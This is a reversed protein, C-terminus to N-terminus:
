SASRLRDRTYSATTRPPMRSSEPVTLAGMPRCGVSRLFIATVGFPERLATVCQPDDRAIAAVRVDAAPELGAARMLDADVHRVDPVRQEAVRKVACGRGVLPKAALTQVRALQFEDMRTGSLMDDDGGVQGLVEGGDEM